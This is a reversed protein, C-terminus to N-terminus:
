ETAPDGEGDSTEEGEIGAEAGGEEGAETGEEGPAAVSEQATEDGEAVTQSGGESVDARTIAGDEATEVAVPVPTQGLPAPDRLCGLVFSCAVVLGIVFIRNKGMISEESNGTTTQIESSFGTPDLEGTSPFTSNFYLEGM